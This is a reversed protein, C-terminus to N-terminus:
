AMRMILSMIVDDPVQQRWVAGSSIVDCDCLGAM